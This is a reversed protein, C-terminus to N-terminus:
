RISGKGVRGVIHQLVGEFVTALAAVLAFVFILFLGAAVGGAIDDGPRVIFLYAVPAAILVVLFMACYKITRLANVSNPSFTKDQGIHGLLTFAQYLGAFFAISAAYAYTLFPDKFYIEFLTANVNRGELHPEWLLFLFAGIGLAVIVARLFLISIKKMQPPHLIRVQSPKRGRTKLVRAM